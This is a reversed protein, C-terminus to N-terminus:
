PLNISLDLIGFALSFASVIPVYGLIKLLADKKEDM